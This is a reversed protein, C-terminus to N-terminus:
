RWWAGTRRDPASARVEDERVVREAAVRNTPQHRLLRAFYALGRSVDGAQLLSEAREIELRTVARQARQNEQQAFKRQSVEGRWKWVVGTFGIILVVVLAAALGALAPERRCWRWSREAWGVPRALILEGRCFRDLEDAFHEASAYRRAPDKELCKLCITALDPPAAPNHPIEHPEGVVTCNTPLCEGFGSLCIHFSSQFM